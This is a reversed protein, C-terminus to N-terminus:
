HIGEVHPSRRASRGTAPPSPEGSFPVGCAPLQPFPVADAHAVQVYGTVRSALGQNENGVVPDPFTAYWDEPPRNSTLVTSANSLRAEALVYLTEAEKQDLARFAFDDLILLDVKM